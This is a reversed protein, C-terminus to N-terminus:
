MLNEFESMDISDVVDAAERLPFPIAPGELVARARMSAEGWYTIDRTVPLRSPRCPGLM